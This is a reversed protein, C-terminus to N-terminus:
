KRLEPNNPWTPKSDCEGRELQGNKNVPFTTHALWDADSAFQVPYAKGNLMTQGVWYPKHNGTYRYLYTRLAKEQDDKTLETGLVMNKM